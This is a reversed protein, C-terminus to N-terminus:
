SKLKSVIQVVEDAEEVDHVRIIAANNLLGFTNLVSTGNLAEKPNSRLLNYIMSKRSIGVLIPCDLIQLLSLNKFLEYNQNLNKAFGFGPDIIVDKVGKARLEQLKWSLERCVDEVVDDYVSLDQMNSANGRSHMLVYPVQLEAVTDFMKDDFGGGYVDNIINAGNLVAQKAVDARFTDVSIMLTPFNSRIDKIIPIIRSLEEDSSLLDAGPRTSVGGVDVIQAGASVMARVQNLIDTSDISRSDEYFSDPTINIIGMVIPCKFNYLIDGNLLMSNSDYNNDKVVM